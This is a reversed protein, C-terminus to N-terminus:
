KNCGSTCVKQSNLVQEMDKKLRQKLASIEEETWYASPEALGHTDKSTEYDNGIINGEIIFTVNPVFIWPKGEDNYQLYGDLLHVIENYKDMSTAKLEKTNTYYIKEIGVEKAVENLYKVYFQCWQCEPFGLYTVGTGHKMIEIIEDPTRYVFVNEESVETYESAFKKAEEQNNPQTNYTTNKEKMKKSIFFFGGIGLLLVMLFVVMIKKKM